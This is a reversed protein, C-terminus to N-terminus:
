VKNIKKRIKKNKKAKRTEIMRNNLFFIKKKKLIYKLYVRIQEKHWKKKKNKKKM